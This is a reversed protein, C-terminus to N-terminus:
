PGAAYDFGFLGKFRDYKFADELALRQYQEM